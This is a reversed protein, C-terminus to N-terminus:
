VTDEPTKKDLENKKDEETAESVDSSSTKATILLDPKDETYRAIFFDFGGSNNMVKKNGFDIRSQSYGAIYMTGNELVYIDSVWDEMDGSRAESTLLLVPEGSTNYKLVFLDNDGDARSILTQKLIESSTSTIM